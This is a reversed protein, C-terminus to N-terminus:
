TSIKAAWQDVSDDRKSVELIMSWCQEFRNGCRPAVWLVLLPTVTIRDGSVSALPVDDHIIVPLGDLDRYRDVHMGHEDLIEDGGLNVEMGAPGSLGNGVHPDASGALGSAVEDCPRRGVQGRRLYRSGSLVRGARGFESLEVNDANIRTRMFNNGQGIGSFPHRTHNTLV